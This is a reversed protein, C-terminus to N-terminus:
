LKTAGSAGPTADLSQGTPVKTTVLWARDFVVQGTLPPGVQVRFDAQANELGAGADGAAFNIGNFPFSITLWRDSGTTLYAEPAADYAGRQPAATNTGSFDAALVDGASADYTEICLEVDRTGAPVAGNTAFYLEGWSTAKGNSRGPLIQIASRGGVTVPAFPGDGQQPDNYNVAQLTGSTAQPSGVGPGNLNVALHSASPAQACLPSAGPALTVAPGAQAQPASKGGHGAAPAAGGCGDTVLGALVFVVASRHQTM